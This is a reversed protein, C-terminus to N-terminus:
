YGATVLSKILLFCQHDARAVPSKKPMSLTLAELM